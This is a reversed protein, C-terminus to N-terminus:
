VFGVMTRDCQSYFKDYDDTALEALNKVGDKLPNNEVYEKVSYRYNTLM